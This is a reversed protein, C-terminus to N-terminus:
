SVAFSVSGRKGMERVHFGCIQVKKKRVSLIQRIYIYTGTIKRTRRNSLVQFIDSHDTENSGCNRGCEQAAPRVGPVCTKVVTCGSHSGNRVVSRNRQNGQTNGECTGDPPYSLSRGPVWDFVQRLHRARRQEM